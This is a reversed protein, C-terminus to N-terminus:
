AAAVGVSDVIREFIQQDIAILRHSNGRHSCKEQTKRRAMLADL